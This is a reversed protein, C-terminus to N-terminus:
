KSGLGFSKFKSNLSGFLAIVTNPWLKVEPGLISVEIYVSGSNSSAAPIPAVGSSDILTDDISLVELAWIFQHIINCGWSKTWWTM